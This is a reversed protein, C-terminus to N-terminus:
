LYTELEMEHKLPIGDTGFLPIEPKPKRTRDVVNCFLRSMDFERKQYFRLASPNDNATILTIRSIGSNRGHSLAANLSATGTGHQEHLSDLSPDMLIIM